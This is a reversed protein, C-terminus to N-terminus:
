PNTSRRPQWPRHPRRRHPRPRRVGAGGRRTRQEPLVAKLDALNDGRHRPPPAGGARSWCCPRQALRCQHGGGPRDSDGDGTSIIEIRM